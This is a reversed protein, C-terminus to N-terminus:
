FWLYSGRRQNWASSPVAHPPYRWPCSLQHQSSTLWKCFVASNASVNLTGLIERETSDATIAIIIGSPWPGGRCLLLSSFIVWSVVILRRASTCHKPSALPVADAIQLTTKSSTSDPSHSSSGTTEFSPSAYNQCSYYWRSGVWQWLMCFRSSCSHWQCSTIMPDM